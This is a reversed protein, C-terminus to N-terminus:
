NTASNRRKLWRKVFIYIVIAVIIVPLYVAIWILAEAVIRVHNLLSRVAYKFVVNPRFATDPTFPLALEDTSLYATIRTLEANKEIAKQQGVLSDIQDQLMILERQVTLIDQVDIAKDLIDEFKAQTKKLTALRAEIDTYEQTIDTGVLNENTVKIALKKFYSLAETLKKTPVRVIISSFPSETPNSYMTSVMYGGVSKTYVLIKDGTDRVDTVLLSLNSEQAVIRNGATTFAITQPASADMKFIGTGAAPVASETLSMKSPYGITNQRSNFLPVIPNFTGKLLLFVIIACLLAILKHSKIWLM